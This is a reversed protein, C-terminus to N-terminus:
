SQTFGKWRRCMRFTPTRSRIVLTPVAIPSSDGAHDSLCIALNHSPPPPLMDAVRALIDQESPMSSSSSAGPTDLPPGASPTDPQEDIIVSLPAYIDHLDALAQWDIATDDDDAFASPAPAAPDSPPGPPQGGSCCTPQAPQVTDAAPTNDDGDCCSNTM